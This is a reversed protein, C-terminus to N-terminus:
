LLFLMFIVVGVFLGLAVFRKLINFSNDGKIFYFEVEDGIDPSIFNYHSIGNGVLLFSDSKDETINLENCSIYVYGSSSKRQVKGRYTVLGQIRRDIVANIVSILDDKIYNM